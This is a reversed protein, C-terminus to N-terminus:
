PLIEGTPVILMGHHVLQTYFTLATTEIGGGQLLM